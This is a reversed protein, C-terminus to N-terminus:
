LPKGLQQLFFADLVDHQIGLIVLAFGFDDGLGSAFAHDRDGGVHGAATGVNQEAAIRFEHGLLLAHLLSDRLRQAGGLALNLDVDVFGLARDPIVGAVFVDDGGILPGFDEIAVLDLGVFFVVFDGGDAAQVNEAGFTVFRPADVVLKAAAGAALAIGTGGAEIEREFIVQHADEGFLPDRVQQLRRPM